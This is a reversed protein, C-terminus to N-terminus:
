SRNWRTARAHSEPRLAEELMRRSRYGRMAVVGRFADLRQRTGSLRDSGLIRPIEALPSGAIAVAHAIWIASSKTTKPRMSWFHSVHRDWQKRLAAMSDRAPHRVLAGPALRTPWGAADARQGWEMDESVALGAFLGVADFVERRVALNATAAFRHRAITVEQRIGYVLDFAEAVNPRPGAAFITVRGGLVGTEPQAAFTELLTALWRPDAICDSDLFAITRARALAIGRNRAPGPGPEPELVLRAFPFHAVEAAPLRGSGNDVIIVEFRDPPLTQAALSALCIELLDPQNLHPVVVSIEPGGAAASDM